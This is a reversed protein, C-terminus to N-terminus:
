SYIMFGDAIFKYMYLVNVNLDHSLKDLTSKILVFVVRKIRIGRVWFREGLSQNLIYFYAM